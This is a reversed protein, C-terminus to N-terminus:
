FPLGDGFPDFKKKIIDHLNSDNTCKYISESLLEEDSMIEYSNPHTRLVTILKSEEDKTLSGKILLKLNRMLLEEFVPLSLLCSIDNDNIVIPVINQLVIIEQQNDTLEYFDGREYDDPLSKCFHPMNIWDLNIRMPSDYDWPHFSSLTRCFIIGNKEDIGRLDQFMYPLAVKRNLDWLIYSQYGLLYYLDHCSFNGSKSVWICGPPIMNGKEKLKYYLSAKFQDPINNTELFNAIYKSTVYDISETVNTKALCKNQTWTYKLTKCYCVFFHMYASDMPKTLINLSPKHESLYKYVPKFDGKDMHYFSIQAPYYYDWSALEELMNEYVTSVSLGSNSDEAFPVVGIKAMMNDHAFKLLPLISGNHTLETIDITKNRIIKNQCYHELSDKANGYQIDTTRVFIGDLWNQDEWISKRFVQMKTIISIYVLNSFTYSKRYKVIKYKNIDHDYTSYIGSRYLSENKPHKSRKIPGKGFDHYSNNNPDNVLVFEDKLAPLLRGLFGISNIFEHNNGGFFGDQIAFIADLKIGSEIIVGLCTNNEAKVTIIKDLQNEKIGYDCCIIYDLPLKSFDFAEVNTGSSPYFAVKSGEPILKRLRDINTRYDFEEMSEKEKTHM